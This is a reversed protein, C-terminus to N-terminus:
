RQGALTKAKLVEFEAASISGSSRLDALRQLEDVVDRQPPPMAGLSQGGAANAHGYLAPAPEGHPSPGFRNPGVTGRLCAFVLLVITGIGTLAIWFWWGSHDTDHLRRVLVAIQPIIHITWVIAFIVGVGQDTRETALSNDIIAAVVLLLFLVLSFSWYESRSARGSMGGYRRMAKFYGTM